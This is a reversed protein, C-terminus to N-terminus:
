PDGDVFGSDFDITLPRPQISCYVEVCFQNEVHLQEPPMASIWRSCEQM